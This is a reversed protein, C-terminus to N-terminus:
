ISSNSTFWSMLSSSNFPLVEVDLWVTGVMKAIMTVYPGAHQNVAFFDMLRSFWFIIDICYILRGATHWPPLGWRLGFGVSFLIIAVTEMLNWYESIWVKV